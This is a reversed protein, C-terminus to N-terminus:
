ILNAFSLAAFHLQDNRFWHRGRVSRCLAFLYRPLKRVSWKLISNSGAHRLLAYQHDAASQRAQRRRHLQGLQADVDIQHAEHRDLARVAHTGLAADVADVIEGPLLAVVLPLMEVVGDVAAIEQLM